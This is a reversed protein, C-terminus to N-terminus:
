LPCSVYFNLTHQLKSALPSFYLVHQIYFRCVHTKKNYNSVLKYQKYHVQLMDGSDTDLDKNCSRWM